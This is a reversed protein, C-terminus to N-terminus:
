EKKLRKFTKYIFKHTPLLSQQIRKAYNISDIIEKQKIEIEEYANKLEVNKLRHIETEKESKETAMKTQLEKIKNSAVEGTVGTKLHDYREYHELAKLYEGTNRYMQSFLLHTRYLKSRNHIKECVLIAEKLYNEAESYKKLSLLLEAIENLTTAVGQWHNTDKRIRLSEKFCELAKEIRGTKRFILGLDNLSRSQGSSVEIEKYFPLIRQLIKEAEDYKEQQIFVSSLGNESRALGYQNDVAAFASAAKRYCKEANELDKMDFHLVALTYLGWHKNKIDKSYEAEKICEYAHEFAKDFNGMHSNMFALFNQIQGRVDHNTVLHFTSMVKKVEAEGKAIDASEMASYALMFRVMAEGNLDKREVYKKLEIELLANVKSMDSDYYLNVFESLIEMRREENTETNFNAIFSDALKAM